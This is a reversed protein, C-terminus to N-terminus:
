DNTSLEHLASTSCQEAINICVFHQLPQLIHRLALFIFSAFCFYVEYPLSLYCALFPYSYPTSRGSLQTHTDIDQMPLPERSRARIASHGRYTECLRMKQPGLIARASTDALQTDCPALWRCAVGAHQGTQTCREGQTALTLWQPLARKDWWMLSCIRVHTVSRASGRSSKLLAPSRPPCSHALLAAGADRLQDMGNSSASPAQLVDSSRRVRGPPRRHTRSLQQSPPRASSRTRGNTGAPPNPALSPALPRLPRASPRVLHPRKIGAGGRTRQLLRADCPTTSCRFLLLCAENRHQM